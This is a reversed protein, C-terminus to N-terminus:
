HLTIKGTGLLNSGAQLKYIYLGAPLSSRNVEIKSQGAFDIERVLQGTINYLFFKGSKVTAVDALAVFFSHHAPNPYISWSASAFLPPAGSVINELKALFFSANQGTQM